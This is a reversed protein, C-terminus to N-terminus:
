VVVFGGGCAIDIAEVNVENTGAKNEILNPSMKNRCLPLVVVVADEDAAEEM